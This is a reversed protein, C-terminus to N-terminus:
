VRLGLRRAVRLLEEEVLQALAIKAEVVRVPGKGLKARVRKVVHPLAEEVATQFAGERWEEVVSRALSARVVVYGGRAGELAKLLAFAACLRALAIPGSSCLRDLLEFEGVAVCSAAFGLWVGPTL